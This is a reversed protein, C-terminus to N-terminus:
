IREDDYSFSGGEVLFFEMHKNFKRTIKHCRTSRARTSRNSTESEELMGLSGENSSSLNSFYKNPEVQVMASCFNPMLM